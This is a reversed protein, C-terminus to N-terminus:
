FFGYNVVFSNSTSFKLNYKNLQKNIKYKINVIVSMNDLRVFMVRIFMFKRNLKKTVQFAIRVCHLKALFEADSSCNLMWTRFCTNVKFFYKNLVYKTCTGQTMHGISHVRQWAGQTMFETDHEKHRTGKTMFGTDHERHCTGLARHGIDHVRIWLSTTMNKIDHERHWRGFTMNVIGDKGM